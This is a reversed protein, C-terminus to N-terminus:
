ESNLRREPAPLPEVLLVNRALNRSPHTDRRMGPTSKMVVQGKRRGPILIM